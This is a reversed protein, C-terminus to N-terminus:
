ERREKGKKCDLFVSIWSNESKLISVCPVCNKEVTEDEVRHFPQQKKNCFGQLLSLLPGLCTITNAPCKIITTTKAVGPRM